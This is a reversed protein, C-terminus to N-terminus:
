RTNQEASVVLESGTPRWRASEIAAFKDLTDTDLPHGMDSNKEIWQNYVQLLQQYNKVIHKKEAFTQKKIPPASIM